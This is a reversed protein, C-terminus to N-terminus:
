LFSVVVFPHKSKDDEIRDRELNKLYHMTQDSAFLLNFHGDLPIISSLFNSKMRRQILIFKQLLWFNSLLLLLGVQHITHEWNWYLAYCSCKEICKKDRIYLNEQNKPSFPGVLHQWSSFCMLEFLKDPKRRSYSKSRIGVISVMFLLNSECHMLLSNNLFIRELSNLGKNNYVAVASFVLFHV